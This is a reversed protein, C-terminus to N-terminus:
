SLKRLLAVFILASIKRAIGRGKLHFKLVSLVSRPGRKAGAIAEEAENSIEDTDQIEANNLNVSETNLATTASEAKIELLPWMRQRRNQGSGVAERAQQMFWMSAWKSQLGDDTSNALM